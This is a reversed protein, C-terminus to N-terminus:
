LITPLRRPLREMMAEPLWPVVAQFRHNLCPGAAAERWFSYHALSLAAWLLAEVRFQHIETLAQLPAEALLQICRPMTLPM